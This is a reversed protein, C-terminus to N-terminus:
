LKLEGDKIKDKGAQVLEMPQMCERCSVLVVIEKTETERACNYCRYKYKM